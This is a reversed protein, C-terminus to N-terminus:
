IFADNLGILHQVIRRMHHLRAFFSKAQFRIIDIEECCDRIHHGLPRGGIVLLHGLLHLLGFFIDILGQGQKRGVQGARLIGAPCWCLLRFHRRLKMVRQAQDIQTM